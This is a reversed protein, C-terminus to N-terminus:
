GEDSLSRERWRVVRYARPDGPDNKLYLVVDLVITPGNAMSATSVVEYVSVPSRSADGPKTGPLSPLLMLGQPALSVREVYARASEMDAGTVTAVVLPSAYALNPEQNTWLTLAPEIRAVIDPALGPVRRLEELSSFGGRMLMSTGQTDGSDGWGVIAKKAAPIREEDVGATRLLDEIREPTALNLNIKGQEASILVSVDAGGVHLTHAHGDVHWRVQDNALRLRYTAAEIGAEAAYYVQTRLSQARAQLSEVRANTALAGLTIAALTCGWLVVLLAVGRQAPLYRRQRRMTM